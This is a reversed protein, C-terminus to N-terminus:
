LSGGYTSLYAQAGSGSTSLATRPVEAQDPVEGPFVVFVLTMEVEKNYSTPITKKGVIIKCILNTSIFNISYM